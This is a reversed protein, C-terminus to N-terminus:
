QPCSLSSPPVHRHGWSVSDGINGAHWFMLGLYVIAGLIHSHVFLEYFRARIYPISFTVLFFLIALTPTGNYQTM